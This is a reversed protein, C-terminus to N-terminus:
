NQIIVDIEIGDGPNDTGNISKILILGRKGPKNLKTSNTEFAFVNEVVLAPKFESADTGTTYANEIDEYTSIADFAAASLSTSFLTTSNKTEWASVQPEFTTNDQFASPSAITGFDTADYYYGFDIDGSLNSSVVGSSSYRIGDNTNFFTLSTFDSPVDLIIGSFLNAPASIVDVNLITSTVNENDDTVDIQVLVISGVHEETTLFSINISTFNQQNQETKSETSPAGPTGDVVVNAVYKNFGGPADIAMTFEITEGAVAQYNNGTGFQASNITITPADLSVSDGGCNTLTLLVFLGLIYEAREIFKIM